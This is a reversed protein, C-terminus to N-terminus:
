AAFKAELAKTVPNSTLEWIPFKVSGKNTVAGIASLAAMTSSAQTPATAASVTHRILLEKMQKDVVVKDSAAALSAAGTFVVGAARFKFLSRMVAINIANKFHGSNLGHLLDNLKDIAYVNFRKGESMSRNIVDPSVNTAMMMAAIGPLAMKTRQKKLTDQINGNLPNHVLEFTAREDFAENIHLLMPARDEEAIESLIESITRTDIVTEAPAEAQVEAPAQAETVAPAAAPTDNAQAELHLENLAAELETDSEVPTTIMQVALEPEIAMLTAMDAEALVRSDTKALSIKRTNKTM